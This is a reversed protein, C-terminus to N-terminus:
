RPRAKAGKPRADYKEFLRTHRTEMSMEQGAIFVREVKTTIELPDGDCVFLDAQKGPEISGLRDGVGLIQAAYLTVAKLAEDRPLGYAAAAGAHYPLNRANAAEDRGGDDGICFTVGAAHLRAPGSYRADYGDHMRTPPDLVGNVIVPIKRRKLEDGIRWADQGGLLIVRQLQMEDAFNLAGRIQALTSARLIVPIEGRLAKAMAEWRVDGDHRPIGAKGEAGRARNYARAQEFADRLAAISQDRQKRAAEPRQAGGGGFGGPAQNLPPWQVLLGAPGLVTMDEHTWGALHILAATGAILGGRPMVLASTVGNVRAVPLLDSDPNIMIEASINPNIEGMERDDNSGPVSSIETLGLVSNPSIFGPYVHKGSCSIVRAGAPIAVSAGVEGIVGDRIVVSADELVPGSVTHVTADTLVITEASVFGAGVVMWMALLGSRLGHSGLGQLDLSRSM